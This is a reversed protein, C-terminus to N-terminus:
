LWLSPIRRNGSIKTGFYRLLVFYVRMNIIVRQGTFDNKQGNARRNTQENWQTSPSFSPTYRAIEHQKFSRYRRSPVSGEREGVSLKRVPQINGSIVDKEIIVDHTSERILLYQNSEQQWFPWFNRNKCCRITPAYYFGCVAYFSM